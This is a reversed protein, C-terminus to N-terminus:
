HKLNKWADPFIEDPIGIYHRFVGGAQAWSSYPMDVYMIHNEPVGLVIHTEEESSRPYIQVDFTNEGTDEDSVLRLIDCLELDHGNFSTATSDFNYVSLGDVERQSINDDDISAGFAHCATLINEPFDPARMSVPVFTTKGTAVAANMELAQKPWSRKKEWEKYHNWLAEEFEDGYDIFVEEDAAIDRTAVIDFGLPVIARENKLDEVTLYFLDGDHYTANTWVIKANAGKGTPKHNIFNVTMGYPYFLVSSQPHGFCYNYLLQSGVVEDSNPDKIVYESDGDEDEGLFLKQYMNLVNEDDIKLLPAPAILDGEKVARTAFAGKEAAKITSLGPYLGDLCQGNEELWEISKKTEPYKSLFTGGNALLHKIESPHKPFLEGIADKAKDDNKREDNEMVSKTGVNRIVDHILYNYVELKKKEYMSEGHKDFFADIKLLAEDADLFDAGVVLSEVEKGLNDVLIEMGAPIFRKAELTIDYFHSNAGRTPPANNLDSIRMPTRFLPAFHDFDANYYQTQHMQGLSGIGPIAARWGTGSKAAETKEKYNETKFVFSEYQGHVTEPTWMFVALDHFYDEDVKGEKLDNHLDIDIVPIAIEPRGIVDGPHLDLGTYMSLAITEDDEKTTSSPALYLSCQGCILTPHLLSIILALNYKASIKM